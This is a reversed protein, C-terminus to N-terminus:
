AGATAQEDQGCATLLLVALLVVTRLVVARRM